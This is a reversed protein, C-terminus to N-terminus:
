LKGLYKELSGEDRCAYRWKSAAGNLINEYPYVTLMVEADSECDYKPTFSFKLQNKMKRSFREEDTEKVKLGSAIHLGSFKAQLIKKGDKKEVLTLKKKIATQKGGILGSLEIESATLKGESVADGSVAVCLGKDSPGGINDIVFSFPLGNIMAAGLSCFTLFTADSSVGYRRDVESAVKKFVSNISAKM